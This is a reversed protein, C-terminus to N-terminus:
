YGHLYCVAVAEVRERKLRGIARQLSRADLAIAAQGNFRMRERVGIRRARPALQEPPPLRLNYRDDKLGERMEIVDRHGETTLLGVKAGSHEILANTAVTTGHVIRESQALLATLPISLTDALLKLGDLVGASPDVPTSPMKALTARGFDDVAVLDTFTGGIDIGIRYM